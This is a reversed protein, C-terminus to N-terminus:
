ILGLRRSRKSSGNRGLIRSSAVFKELQDIPFVSMSYFDGRVKTFAVIKDVLYLAEGKERFAETIKKGLSSTGKIQLRWTGNANEGAPFLIANGLYDVGEFNITLDM